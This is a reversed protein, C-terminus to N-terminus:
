DTYQYSLGAAPAVLSSSSSSSLLSILSVGGGCRTVRDLILRAGGGFGTTTAVICARSVLDFIALFGSTTCVADIGAETGLSLEVGVGDDSPNSAATVGGVTFTLPDTDRCVRSIQSVLKCCMGSEAGSRAFANM